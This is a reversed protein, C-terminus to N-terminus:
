SVEVVEVEVVVEVMEVVEVVELWAASSCPSRRLHSGCLETRRGGRRSDGPM